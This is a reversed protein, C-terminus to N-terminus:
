YGMRTRLLCLESEGSVKLICHVQVQLLLTGTNKDKPPTPPVLMQRPPPLLTWNGLNNFWAKSPMEKSCM